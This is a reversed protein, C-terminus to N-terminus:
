AAPEVERTPAQSCLHSSRRIVDELNAICGETITRIQAVFYSGTGPQLSFVRSEPIPAAREIEANRQAASRSLPPGSAGTSTPINGSASLRYSVGRRPDVEDRPPVEGGIDPFMLMLERVMWELSNVSDALPLEEIINELCEMWGIRMKEWKTVWAMLRPDVPADLFEDSPPLIERHAKYVRAIADSIQQPTPRAAGPVRRFMKPFEEEWGSMAPWGDGPKTPEFRRM